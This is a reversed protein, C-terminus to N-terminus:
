TGSTGKSPDFELSQAVNPYRRWMSSRSSWDGNWGNRGWPNCLEVLQITNSSSGLRVERIQEIAYAHGAFLGNSLEQEQTGLGGGTKQISCGVLQTVGWLRQNRMNQHFSVMVEHLSHSKHKSADLEVTHSFHGTFDTLAYSITGGILTRYGGMLKAYAKEVIPGWLSTGDAHRCFAPLPGLFPLRDDVVVYVAKAEKVFRVVYLGLRPRSVVIMSRILHVDHSFLVALTAIVWCDGLMGQELDPNGKGYMPVNLAFLRPQTEFVIEPRVQQHELRLYNCHYEVHQNFNESRVWLAHPENLFSIDEDFQGDLFKDGSLELDHILQLLVPDEPSVLTNFSMRTPRRSSEREHRKWMELQKKTKLEVTVAGGSSLIRRHTRTHTKNKNDRSLNQISSVYRASAGVDFRQQASEDKENWWVISDPINSNDLEVPSKQSAEITM